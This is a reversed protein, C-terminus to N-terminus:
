ARDHPLKRLRSHCFAALLEVIRGDAELKVVYRHDGKNRIHKRFRCDGLTYHRLRDGRKYPRPRWGVPTLRMRLWTM